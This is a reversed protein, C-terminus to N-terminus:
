EVELSVSLQHDEYTQKGRFNLSIYFDFSVQMRIYNKIIIRFKPYLESFNLEVPSRIRPLKLWGDLWQDVMSSCTWLTLRRFIMDDVTDLTGM